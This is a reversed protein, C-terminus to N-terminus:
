IGCAVTLVWPLWNFLYIKLFPFFPSLFFVQLYDRFWSRQKCTKSLSQDASLSCLPRKTYNTRSQAAPMGMSAVATTLIELFGPSHLQPARKVPLRRKLCLKQSSHRPEGHGMRWGEPMAREKLSDPNGARDGGKGPGTSVPILSETRGLPEPSGAPRGQAPGAVKQAAQVCRGEARGGAGSDRLSSGAM